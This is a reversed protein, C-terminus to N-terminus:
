LQSKVNKENKSNIIEMEKYDNLSNNDKKGIREVKMDYIMNQRIVYTWKPAKEPHSYDYSQLKDDYHCTHQSQATQIKKLHENLM